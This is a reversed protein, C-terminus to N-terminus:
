QGTKLLHFIRWLLGGVVGAAALAGIVGIITM